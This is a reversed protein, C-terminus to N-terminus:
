CVSCFPSGGPEGKQIQFRNHHALLKLTIGIIGIAANTTIIAPM